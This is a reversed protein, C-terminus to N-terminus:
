HSWAHDRWTGGLTLRSSDLRLPAPGRLFGSAGTPPLEQPVGRGVGLGVLAGSFVEKLEQM